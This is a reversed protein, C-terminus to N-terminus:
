ATNISLTSQLQWYYFKCCWWCLCYRPQRTRFRYRWLLRQLFRTVTDRELQHALVFLRIATEKDVKETVKNFLTIIEEM